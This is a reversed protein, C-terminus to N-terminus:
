IHGTQTSKPTIHNIATDHKSWIDTTIAGLFHMGNKGVIPCVFQDLLFYWTLSVLESMNISEDETWISSVADENVIRLFLRTAQVRIPIEERWLGDLIRVGLFYNGKKCVESKSKTKM